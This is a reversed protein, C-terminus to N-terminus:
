NSGDYDMLWVERHGTRDSVFAISSLFGGTAGTFHRVLDNALKHAMQSLAGSGGRYKRGMQIAGSGLDFLRAELVYDGGTDIEFALRLLAQAGAKTAAENTVEGPPLAVPTFIGSFALDKQLTKTFSAEVVQSAVERGLAPDPIAIRITGQAQSGYIDVGIQQQAHLATSLALIILAFGISRHWPRTM